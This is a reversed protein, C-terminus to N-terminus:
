SSPEPAEAGSEALSAFVMRSTPTQEPSSIPVQAEEGVLGSADRVVVMSGDELFGVGDGPRCGEKNISLRVLEGPMHGSLLSDALRQLNLCRVGRIEAISALAQDDTM